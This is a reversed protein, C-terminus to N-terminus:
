KWHIDLLIQKIQKEFEKGSTYVFYPIGQDKCREAFARQAVSLRGRGDRRKAEAEIHHGHIILYTDAAGKEGYRVMGGGPTFVAGTNRRHLKWGNKRAIQMAERIVSAELQTRPTRKRPKKPMIEEIPMRCPDDVQEAGYNWGKAWAVQDVKTTYSPSVLEGRRYAHVGSVFAGTTASVPERFKM